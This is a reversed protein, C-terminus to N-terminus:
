SRCGRDNTPRRYTNVTCDSLPSITSANAISAFRPRAAEPKQAECRPRSASRDPWPAAPEQAEHALRRPRRPREATRPRGGYRSWPEASARRASFGMLLEANTAERVWMAILSRQQNTPEEARLAFRGVAAARISCGDGVTANERIQCGPGVRIRSGLKATEDIVASPHIRCGAPTEEGNRGLETM